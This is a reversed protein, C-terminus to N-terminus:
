EKVFVRHHMQPRAHEFSTRTLSLVDTPETGLFGAFFERIPTNRPTTRYDFIAEQVGFHNFLCELCRYEIRRSFARCSMVWTDVRLAKPTQLGGLVAIKGLPGFKDKYAVVALFAAPDKLRTRWEMETFRRGNLNFQNTKNVLELPRPDAPDPAFDIMLDAEAAKLFTDYGAAVVFDHAQRLSQLRIQDEDGIKSKGFWDRLAQLLRVVGEEDDPFALCEIEPFAAKVEALELATDDVFVVSDPAINWACLIRGVAESKPGWGVGFPFIQDARLSLDERKFVERVAEPDNKSAIAVLVGSQGLSSLLKQYVAHHASHHELDWTVGAPGDDGLIGKWLCQDLDTILGKKPVRESLLRALLEGLVSAHPLRYPFGSRLEGKVDWRQGLPSMLDLRQRNLLRVNPIVALETALEAVLRALEMEFHGAQWGPLPTVPPLPLTPLSIAVTDMSGAVLLIDRLRQTWRTAQRVIDDLDGSSWNGANRLGLRSDFDPWELAVAVMGSATKHARMLNGLCDGYLGVEVQVGQGQKLERLHAALFTQLHLPTFGCALYACFPTGAAPRSM